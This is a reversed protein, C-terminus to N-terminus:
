RRVTSSSPRALPTRGEELTARLRALCRSIRSAVTGGPLGLEQGITRYSEDRCFFRDLIEACDTSLGALAARVEFAEDLREIADDAAGDDALEAPEERGSRRYRDLCVNRTLQAIWPRIADDSRLTDLREYVRAFVDQFADEADHGRLGFAQVVIAHVYRSFREVLEAAAAEDGARCAAVLESDSLAAGGM